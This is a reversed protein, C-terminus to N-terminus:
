IPFKTWLTDVVHRLLDQNGAVNNAWDTFMFDENSWESQFKVGNNLLESATELSGWVTRMVSFIEVTCHVATM